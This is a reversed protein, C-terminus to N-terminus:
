KINSKEFEVIRKIIDSLSITIKWDPYDLQFKALSSIYWAHDGIRANDSITYNNWNTGAIDNIMDIAEIISVSNGIGGGANYVEGKKISNNYYSWFMTVLDYAHINDRVQLGKHGYITYPKNHIICKALYSLFGHMEVGAHNEGTICGCRFVVTNLGFYKGYEQVLLDGATKSVGFLSHLCNDIPMNENISFYGDGDENLWLYQRNELKDFDVEYRSLFRELPLQNPTDGYAKNTSVQIFVADPYVNRLLELMNLTGNANITFDMEPNKAAWDHSPQAACHIIIDVNKAHNQLYTAYSEYDRIDTHILQFNDPYKEILYNMTKSVTADKGFLEQRMNNDIGYVFFGKEIFFKTAEFGVLGCCGTIIAEKM